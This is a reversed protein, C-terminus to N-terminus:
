SAAEALEWARTFERYHRPDAIIAGRRGVVSAAFTQARELTLELAWGHLLGLIAVAAFADGAGVPDVAAVPRPPAARATRGAADVAFAGAAGETVIVLDLDFSEVWHRARDAPDGEAGALADLEARNLKVWRARSVLALVEERSWWPARLNVDLFVPAGCFRLLTELAHRPAAERLALTGHYLLPAGALPPLAEAAIADFAAPLIRYAPEGDALEVDVRGTPRHSDIQIGADDMGWAHMAQVVRAGPDDAGIRSITLPRAGLAQLNWAVNFPAGGLVTEGGPFHDFLVEGFILPPAPM